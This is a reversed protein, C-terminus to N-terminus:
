PNVHYIYINSNWSGIALAQDLSAVLPGLAQLFSEQLQIIEKM